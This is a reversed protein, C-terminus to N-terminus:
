ELIALRKMFISEGIILKIFVVGKSLGLASAEYNMKHSGIKDNDGKQESLILGSKNMFFIQVREPKKLNYSIYFGGTTPNPYVMIEYPNMEGEISNDGIEILDIANSKFNPIAILNFDPSYFIDAPGFHGNSFVKPEENFGPDFKYVADDAWSSVYCNGDRDLVIGDLQNLTIPSLTFIRKLKLDLAQIPSALRFSCILLRNQKEDFYVGNPKILGNDKYIEEVNESAINIKFIANTNSDSIYLNANDSTIDNLFSSGQVDVQFVQSGDELNFGKVSNVDTCYLINNVIVLGKPSNVGTTVFDSYDRSAPDMSVISGGNRTNAANSIMYRKHQNDFVISEPSNLLQSFASLQILGILFFLLVRKIM